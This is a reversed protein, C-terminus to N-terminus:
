YLLALQGRFTPYIPIVACRFKVSQAASNPLIQRSFVATARCIIISIYRFDGASFSSHIFLSNHADYPPCVFARQRVSTRFVWEFCCVGIVPKLWFYTRPGCKIQRLSVVYDLAVFTANWCLSVPHGWLLLFFERLKGPKELTMFKSKWLNDFFLLHLLSRWWSDNWMFELLIVPWWQVIVM